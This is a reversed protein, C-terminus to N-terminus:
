WVGGGYFWWAYAAPGAVGALAGALGMELVCWVWLTGVSPARRMVAYYAGENTIHILRCGSLNATLLFLTQKILALRTGGTTTTTFFSSSSSSFAFRGHVVHILLAWAPLATFVTEALLPGLSLTQAYQHAALVSLTFHIASLSLATLLTDHLPPIPTPQAPQDPVPDASPPTSLISPSDPTSDGPNLTIVTGNQFSTFNNDLGPKTPGHRAQREAAVELLTKTPIHNSERVESLGAPRRPTSDPVNPNSPFKPTNRRM